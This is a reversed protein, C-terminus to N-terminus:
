SRTCVTEEQCERVSPQLVSPYQPNGIVRRLLCDWGDITRDKSFHKAYVRHCHEQLAKLRTRDVRLERLAAAVEPLTEETLVWGVRLQQIWQAVASHTSGEFVVPRGVALAAFFKSPVVTGTWAERLSVLHIDGAGLRTELDDEVAFDSVHVNSLAHARVAALLHNRMNGRVSFCFHIEDSALDGALALLHESIHARGFSGSYLLGLVDSRGFLQRKAAHNEPLPGASEVLAWPVLTEACTGRSLYKALRQRMCPGIDVVVSCAAYAMRLPAQIIRDFLASHRILGDAVASDPFLDFCWHAVPVGKL